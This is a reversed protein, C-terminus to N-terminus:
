GKEATNLLGSSANGTAGVLGSLATAHLAFATVLGIAVVGTIFQEVLNM